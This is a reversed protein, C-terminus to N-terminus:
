PGDPPERIPSDEPPYREHLAPVIPRHADEPGFAEPCGDEDQYGDPDEAENPCADAVDDITDHDTDLAAIGELASGNPDFPQPPCDAPQEGAPRTCPDVAPAPSTAPTQSEPATPPRSCATGLSFVLPLTACLRPFIFCRM